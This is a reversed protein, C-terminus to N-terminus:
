RRGLFLIAAALVTSSQRSLRADTAAWQGVIAATLQLRAALADDNMARAAPLALATAAAGVGDVIPGSDADAPRDRGRPWERFGVLLARDVLYADKYRRWWTAALAADVEGLYRTQFSLACGRPERAGAAKGTAESWPLGLRPDIEKALMRDRWRQLPQDALHTGHGRDFRKLSALTATQDAPWRHADGAFSPVHFTPERLSRRALGEAIAAHEQPDACPALSDRAGLMLNLHSLWVGDNAAAVDLDRPRAARALAIARAICAVAPARM